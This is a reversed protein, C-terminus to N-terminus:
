FRTPLIPALPSGKADTQMALIGDKFFKDIRVKPVHASYFFRALKFDLTNQFPRFFNYTPDRQRVFSYAAIMKGAEREPPFSITGDEPREHANLLSDQPNSDRNDKNCDFIIEKCPGRLLEDYDHRQSFFIGSGSFLETWQQELDQDTICQTTKASEQTADM